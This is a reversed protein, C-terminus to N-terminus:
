SQAQQQASKSGQAAPRGAGQRRECLRARRLDRNKVVREALGRRHLLVPPKGREDLIAALANQEVGAVIGIDKSVIDVGFADIQPLKIEGNDRVAMAVMGGAQVMKERD